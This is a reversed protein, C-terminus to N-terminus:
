FSNYNEIASNYNKLKFNCEALQYKAEGVSFFEPYDSLITKYESVALEYNKLDQYYKVLQFRALVAFDSKGENLVEKYYYIAKGLNGQKRYCTAILYNFKAKTKTETDKLKKELIAVAQTYRGTSMLESVKTIDKESSFSYLCVFTGLLAIFLILFFLLMASKM